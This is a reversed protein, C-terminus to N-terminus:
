GKQKFSYITQTQLNQAQSSPKQTPAIVQRDLQVQLGILPDSGSSVIFELQHLDPIAALEDLIQVVSETYPHNFHQYWNPEGILPEHFGLHVILGAGNFLASALPRADEQLM